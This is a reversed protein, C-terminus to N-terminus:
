AGRGWGVCVRAGGGVCVCVAVAMIKYQDNSPLTEITPLELQYQEDIKYRERSTEPTPHPIRNYRNRIM